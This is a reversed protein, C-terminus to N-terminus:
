EEFREQYQRLLEYYRDILRRTQPTFRTYSPDALVTRIEQELEELTVDPPRSREFESATRGRFEESEERQQLSERASLMRSLIDYQRENMLPDTVGGRMDNIAEEMQETLRRLESLTRDGERLMGSQRMEELQRRIENQQRALQELRESQDQTLRQGQLDNIMEQLQRNMQLQDESMSQLQEIMQQMSLGGGGDGSQQNQLQEAVEALMSALENIGGLSERTALVASQREREALQRTSQELARDVEAKRQNIRNSLAPIESSIRFLTDAIVSFQSRINQQDRALRVYGESGTDTQEVLGALEEQAESLQLLTFLAQRLALLNIQIQQNSMEERAQRLAEARAQFQEAIQQQREQVQQPEQRAQQGQQGQQGTQGSSEQEAQQGAQQGARQGQQQGSQQGQQLEGGDGQMEQILRDLNERIEALEQLAENKMERLRQEARQPPRSDLQDLQNQLDGTDERIAQQEGIQERLLQESLPQKSAQESAQESAQNSSNQDNAQDNQGSSNQENSNQESQALAEMRRGLDEYQGALRDLDSSMKLTKFLELTRELRERFLEENFEFNEMAQQVASPDIGQLAERLEELAALLAPDDLQEILEQLDSWARRTTESIEDSGEMENRLEDFQENLTRITEEMEQRRDELLDLNRSEEQSREPNQRLRDRFRSYEQDVQQKQESIRDLAQQIEGEKENMQELRATLSPIELIRERSWGTKYGNFADNDQVSLRFTLRDRPRLDLEGIQWTFPTPRGPQPRNLKLSGEVPEETFARQLEWHLRASTLGFDDDALWILDIRDSQAPDPNSEPYLITVVPYEDELLRVPTRFDHDASMGERDTMSFRLTDSRNLTFTATAPQIGSNPNGAIGASAGTPSADVFEGRLPEDGWLIELSELPKSPIGEITIRSGGYARLEAMPWNQDYPELGTYEPPEVRLTLSEFRPIQRVSIRRTESRFGDMQVYWELDATMEQPLGEFTREGVPEMPRQRWNEEIDTKFHFQLQRPLDRSGGFEIKPRVSSGYQLTTDGPSLHFQWPNPRSYRTFLNVSRGAADPQLTILAAAAALTISLLLASWRLSQKVPHTSEWSNLRAEVTEASIKELNNRIALEHLPSRIEERDLWLDLANQLRPLSANKCFERYFAPFTSPVRNREKRHSLFALAGASALLISWTIIKAVPPLWLSKELLMLLILGGLFLTAAQLWPLLRGRRILKRYRTRLLAEVREITRKQKGGRTINNNNAIGSNGSGSKESDSPRTDGPDSKKNHPRSDAM